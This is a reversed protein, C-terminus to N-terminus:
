NNMSFDDKQVIMTINPEDSVITSEEVLSQEIITPEQEKLPIFEVYNTQISSPQFLSNQLPSSRFETFMIDSVPQKIQKKIQLSTNQKLDIDENLIISISSGKKSLKSRYTEIEEKVTKISSM